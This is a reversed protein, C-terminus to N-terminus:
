QSRREEHELAMVTKCFPWKGHICADERCDRYLSCSKAMRKAARIVRTRAMVLRPNEKGKPM